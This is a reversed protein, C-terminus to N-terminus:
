RPPSAASPRLPSFHAPPQKSSAPSIGLSCITSVSILGRWSVEVRSLPGFTVLQEPHQVPLNRLLVQNLLTFIATNAGIGLALSLLATLTFGPSKLLMRLSFRCDQILADVASEWRSSWVQHKVSGRSGIELRPWVAPPKPPKARLAAQRLRLSKRLYSQLEEDLERDIRPKQFLSKLGTLLNTLPNMHNEPAHLDVDKNFGGKARFPQAM